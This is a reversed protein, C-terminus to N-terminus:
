NLSSVPILIPGRFSFAITLDALKEGKYIEKRGIDNLMLPVKRRVENVYLYVKRQGDNYSATFSAEGSFHRIGGKSNSALHYKKIRKSGIVSYDSENSLEDFLQFSKDYREVHFLSMAELYKITPTYYVEDLSKIKIIYDLCDLWDMQKFPVTTREKFFLPCKANLLWWLRFKLYLARSDREIKEKNEELYNYALGILDLEKEDPIESMNIDVEGKLIHRAKISYGASSGIKELKQFAVESIKTNDIILSIDLKRKNFDEIHRENIGELEAFEIIHLVDSQVSLLEIDSLFNSQLISKSTWLFVDLSYYNEPSLRKISFLQNKSLEYYEIIKRKDVKSKNKDLWGVLRTGFTSALEVKLYLKLKSGRDNSKFSELEDELIKEAKELYDESNGQSRKAIERLFSAEQLVLRPHHARRSLRLDELTDVIDVLLEHSVPNNSNPGIQQLLDVTFDIEISRDYGINDTPKYIIRSLINRVIEIEAKKSGLSNVLIGAEIATRPGVFINGISDEHWKIIDTQKLSNLLSQNFAEAGICRVLIEFPISLGFQGPVTVYNIFIEKINFLEGDIEYEIENENNDAFGADLLLEALRTKPTFTKKNTAQEIIYSSFYNVENELGTSINPKTSPLYRYLIALFNREGSERIINDLYPRDPINSKLYKSFNNQETSSLEISAEIFNNKRYNELNTSEKKSYASGILLVKRGRANLKSLLHFYKEDDVMGDWIVFTFNAGNNEAWECFADIDFENVRQYGRPIYLVPYNEKIAFKYGISGLGITKGSSSQGYVIIPENVQANKETYNKALSFVDEIFDRQFALGLHYGSWYPFNNVNSLFNKFEIYREGKDDLEQTILLTEDLVLGSKQIRNKLERPLQKKSKNIRIWRGYYNEGDYGKLKDILYKENQRLFHGISNTYPVIINREVLDSIFADNMYEEKFSFFHVQEEKLSALIGYFQSINLWDSHPNYGDIFLKGAPTIVEKINNLRNVAGNIREQKELLNLPPRKKSDNQSTSGFLYFIHLESRNRPEFVEKNSNYVPQPLRWENTLSSELIGNISTTLITSWPLKTTLEFSRPPTIRNSLKYMWSLSKEINHNIEVDFLVDYNKQRFEQEEGYKSIISELFLDREGDLTLFNQGMFLFAPDSFIKDILDTIEKSM